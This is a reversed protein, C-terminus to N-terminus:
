RFGSLVSEAVPEPPRGAEITWGSNPIGPILWHLERDWYVADTPGHWATLHVWFWVKSRTSGVSKQTDFLGTYDGSAIRFGRTYGGSFGLGRLGTGVLERMVYKFLEQATMPAADNGHEHWAPGQSM